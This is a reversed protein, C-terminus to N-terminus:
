NQEQIFCQQNVSIKKYIVSQIICVYTSTGKEIAEVNLITVKLCCLQEIGETHLMPGTTSDHGHGHIACLAQKLSSSTWYGTPGGSALLSPHRGRTSCGLPTMDAKWLVVIRTPGGSASLSGISLSNQSTDTAM